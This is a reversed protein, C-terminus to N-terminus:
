KKLKLSSMDIAIPTTIQDMIGAPYDEGGPIYHAYTDMLVTLSQGLIAAVQVPPTGHALMISAATHRIDHFRIHPLGSLLTLNNFERSLNNGNRPTGVSSPFVLDNESWNTVALAKMLPVVDTFQYRLSEMGGPGIRISRRGRDTKPPQFHWGGGEPQFVQRVVKIKGSIWDIDPWRLGTLESKRMGTAFALRYFPKEDDPLSILFQNVQNEDWVQMETKEPRPVQVKETWNQSVLGLNLAHSLAGHLVTHVVEITRAGAGDKELSTYFRQIVLATLDKMAYSGLYPKIYSRIMHGYQEQTAGRINKQKTAFWSDIFESLITKTGDITLGQEVQGVMNKRWAECERKTAASFYIRKGEVTVAAQWRGSQRRIVTGEGNSRKSM